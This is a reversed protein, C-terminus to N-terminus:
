RVKRTAYIARRGEAAWSQSEDDHSSIAVIHSASGLTCHVAAAIVALVAPSPREGSIQPAAAPASAITSVPAPAPAPPPTAGYTALLNRRIDVLLWVAGIVLFVILLVSKVTQLDGAEATASVVAGSALFIRSIM